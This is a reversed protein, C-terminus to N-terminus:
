ADGLAAFHCAVWRGPAPQRWEPVEKACRDEASPCRTRFRCGSPPNVPSPIEGVLPPTKPGRKSPPLPIPEAALLAKTYPHLPAETLAETPGLEMFHGLYMVAIRDSIHSVVGLDHSIFVYTLGFDRQLEAFLNLVDAQISVDLAAVVEDCVILKPMHTLARAINVRQKQGGSLEHPYRTALSAHLGVRQMLDFVRDDREERTGKGAIDLPERVSLGVPVRPNLSANPDQFVMQFSRRHVRLEKAGLSHPDVGEHLLHGSSLAQLCVLSRGLTSKGSGSEGIIGFTERAHVDFTIGDVARLSRRGGLPFHVAADRAELIPMAAPKLIQPM